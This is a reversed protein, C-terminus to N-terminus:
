NCYQEIDHFCAGERETPHCLRVKQSGTVPLRVGREFYFVHPMERLLEGRNCV